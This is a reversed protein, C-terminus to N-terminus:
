HHEHAAVDESPGLHPPDFGNLTPQESVVERRPQLLAEWLARISRHTADHIYLHDAQDFGFLAADPANHIEQFVSNILTLCEILRAKNLRTYRLLQSISLVHLAPAAQNLSTERGLELFVQIAAYDDRISQFVQVAEDPECAALEPVHASSPQPQPHNLKVVAAAVENVIWQRVEAPAAQLQELSLAFSMM